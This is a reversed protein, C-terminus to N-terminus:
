GPPHPPTLLLSSSPHPAGSRPHPHGPPAGPHGRLDAARRRGADGGGACVGACKIILMKMEKFSIEESKDLSKKCFYNNTGVFSFNLFMFGLLTLIRKEVQQGGFGESEIRVINVEDEKAGPM